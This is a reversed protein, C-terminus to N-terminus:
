CLQLHLHEYISLETSAASLNLTLAPLKSWQGRTEYHSLIMANEFPKGVFSCFCAKRGFTKMRSVPVTDFTDREM